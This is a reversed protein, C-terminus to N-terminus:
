AAMRSNVSPASTKKQDFGIVVSGGLKVCFMAGPNQNTIGKKSLQLPPRTKKEAECNAENKNKLYCDASLTLRQEPKRIFNVSKKEIELSFTETNEAQASLTLLLTLLKM